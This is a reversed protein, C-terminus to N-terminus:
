KIPDGITAIAIDAATPVFSNGKTLTWRLTSEADCSGFITEGNKVNVTIKGDSSQNQNTVGQPLSLVVFTSAPSSNTIRFSISNTQDCDGDQKWEVTIGNQNLLTSWEPKQEIETDTQGKAIGIGSLLILGILYLKKM